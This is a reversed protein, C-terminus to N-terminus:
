AVGHERHLLAGLGAGLGHDGVAVAEHHLVGVARGVHARAGAVVGLVRHRREGLELTALEGVLIELLGVLEARVDGVGLAVHGVAVGRVHHDQVVVAAHGLDM